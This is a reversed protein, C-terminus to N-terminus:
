GANATTFYCLFVGVVAVLKYYPTILFPSKHGEHFALPKQVCLSTKPSMKNKKIIDIQM